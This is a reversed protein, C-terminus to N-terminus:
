LGAVAAGDRRCGRDCRPVSWPVVPVRHEWRGALRCDGVSAIAMDVAMAVWRV